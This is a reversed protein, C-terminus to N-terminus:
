NCRMCSINALICASIFVFDCDWRGVPLGGGFGGLLWLLLRGLLPCILPCAGLALRCLTYDIYTTQTHTHTHEVQNRLPSHKSYNIKDLFSKLVM